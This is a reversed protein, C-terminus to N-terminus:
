LYIPALSHRGFVGHRAQYDQYVRAICIHSDPFFTNSYSLAYERGTRTDPFDPLERQAPM